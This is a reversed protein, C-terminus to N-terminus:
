WLSMLICIYDMSVDIYFLSLFWYLRELESFSNSLINVLSKPFIDAFILSISFFFGRRSM